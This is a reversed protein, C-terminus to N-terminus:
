RQESSDLILGLGVAIKRNLLGETDFSCDIVYNDRLSLHSQFLLEGLNIYDGSRLSQVATQVRLNETIIHKARRYLVDGLKGKSDELLPLSVDRYRATGDGQLIQLAAESELRRQNYESSSLERRVRSDCVVIQLGNKELQLPIYEYHLTECDLFLAEDKMGFASIFQDMLGCAVGEFDNEAKQALRAM